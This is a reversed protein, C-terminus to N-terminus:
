PEQVPISVSSTSPSAPRARRKGVSERVKSDEPTRARHLAVIGGTLNRYAVRTFGAGRLWQSLVSQEPWEQISEMLYRYSDKHTSAVSTIVPMLYKMYSDYGAKVLAGPPHSFECIVIRGGPKLVRYMEGLAVQPNSVNRLGFSITVADFSAAPFPLAEADGVIFDIDPHRRRGEAVMGPSFDLAVVQAGARALAKSSTGTGAAVDLVREGPQIKLARVTAIRWLVSNGGSLLANTRDYGKAVEDFMGSVEEPNKNLDATTV